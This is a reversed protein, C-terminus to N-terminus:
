EWDWIQKNQDLDKLSEGRQEPIKVWKKPMEKMSSCEYFDMPSFSLQHSTLDASSIGKTVNM